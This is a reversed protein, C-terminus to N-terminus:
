SFNGFFNDEDVEEAAAVHDDYIGMEGLSLRKQQAVFLWPRVSGPDLALGEEWRGWDTQVGFDVGAGLLGFSALLNDLSRRDMPPMLGAVLSDFAAMNCLDTFLTTLAATGLGLCSVGQLVWVSLRDGRFGARELAGAFGGGDAQQLDAPVRRLLCSRPVRAQQARLAAEAQRHAEAPAVCFIVTGEPWPLRYPRTDLADGVLVVQNYEQTLDRETNVITVAKLLQEDLFRTALADRQADAAGTGDGDGAAAAGVAEVLAAAYGDAFLPLPQQQEAARVACCRM